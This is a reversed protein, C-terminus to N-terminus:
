PLDAAPHHSSDDPLAGRGGGAATATTLISHPASAARALDYAEALQAVIWWLVGLTAFWRWNARIAGPADLLPTRADVAIILAVALLAFDVLGLLLVRESAVLGLSPLALRQLWNGRSHPQADSIPAPRSDTIM